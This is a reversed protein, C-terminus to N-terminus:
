GWLMLSASKRSSEQLTLTKLTLQPREVSEGVNNVTWLELQYTSDSKLGRLQFHMATQEAQVTHEVQQSYNSQETQQYRIIVRSISHSEVVLWM